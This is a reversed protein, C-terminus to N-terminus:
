QFPKGKGKIEVLSKLKITYKRNRSKGSKMLLPSKLIKTAEHKNNLNLFQQCEQNSIINKFVLFYDVLATEHADRHTVRCKPCYWSRIVKKMGILGCNICEVGKRISDPNIGYYETLPFPHFDTNANLLYNKLTDLQNENIYPTIAKINRIHPKIGRRSLVTKNAPPVKIYSTPFAFVVASYIPLNMGIARFLLNLQYVYEELQLVPSEYSHTVNTDLKRQMQQDTFTIEGKINKVELVLAYYPTVLLIDVQFLSEAYLSLNHFIYFKYPLKLQEMMKMVVEEGIEGALNQYYEEKIMSYKPHNKSLRKHLSHLAKVYLSASYKKVIM